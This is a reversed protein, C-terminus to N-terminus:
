LTSVTFQWNVSSTTTSVVGGADNIGFIDGPMLDESISLPAFHSGNTTATVTDEALLTYKQAPMDSWATAVTKPEVQGTTKSICEGHALSYLATAGCSVGPPPQKACDATASICGGTIACYQPTAGECVPRFM